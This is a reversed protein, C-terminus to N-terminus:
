EASERELMGATFAVLDGRQRCVEMLRSYDGAGRSLELLSPAFGSTRSGPPILEITAEIAEAYRKLRALLAIYVEAPATGHEEPSANKARDRFYTVAEDVQQGLQAAFFLGHSPYVDAFPEDGAFQFQRSLRRGYETLDYALRLQAPDELVRAFRITAALHTTDIHYNHEAFLWDRDAVLEALSVEKPPQGEQKTIDARVNALLEEHLRKLLLAAAAQQDARPRGMLAGEYTTIANCTGYHKLVLEFGHAPAVGEHLGIEILDQLNEDNPEIKVLEAAVLQKDGLPRLYMWAERLKGEGLLHAGVERCSDLYATEVQSRVPESLDDLPTALVVPLGLAHRSRMLLVDFLEHYKREATLHRALEELVGQAGRASLRSELQDFTDRSM